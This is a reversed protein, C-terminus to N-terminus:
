KNTQKTLKENIEGVIQGGFCQLGKIILRENIEEYKVNHKLVLIM